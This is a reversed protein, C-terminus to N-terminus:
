SICRCFKRFNNILRFFYKPPWMTAFTQYWLFYSLNGLLMYSLSFAAQIIKDTSKSQTHIVIHMYNYDSSKTTRCISRRCNIWLWDRVIISHGVEAGSEVSCTYRVRVRCRLFFLARLFQLWLLHRRVRSKIYLKM